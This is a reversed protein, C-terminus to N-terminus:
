PDVTGAPVLRYYPSPSKQGIGVPDPAKRRVPKLTRLFAVIAIAEDQRLYRQYAKWPMVTALERGDPRVGKLLADKIQDDTWAGLGTAKDGTLNPAFYVGIGAEHRGNTGGSFNGPIPAKSKPDRPSHCVSCSMLEVLHRGRAVDASPADASAAPAALTVLALLAASVARVKMM